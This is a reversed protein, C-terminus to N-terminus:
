RTSKRSSLVRGAASASPLCNIVQAVAQRAMAMNGGSLRDKVLRILEAESVEESALGLQNMCQILLGAPPAVDGREYKCILSQTSGMRAAFARQTECLSLRAQLVISSPKTLRGAQM